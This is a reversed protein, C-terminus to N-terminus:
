NLPSRKCTGEWASCPCWDQRERDSESQRQIDRDRQRETERDIDRQRETERDRQRETKTRQRETKRDHSQRGVGSWTDVPIGPKKGARQLPVENM